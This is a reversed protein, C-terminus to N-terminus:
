RTRYVPQLVFSAYVKRVLTHQVKKTATLFLQKTNFNSGAMATRIQFACFTALHESVFIGDVVRSQHDSVLKHVITWPM